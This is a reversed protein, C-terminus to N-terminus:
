TVQRSQREIANKHGKKFDSGVTFCFARLKGQTDFCRRHQINLTDIKGVIEGLLEILESRLITLNRISKKRGTGLNLSDNGKITISIPTLSSFLSHPSLLTTIKM